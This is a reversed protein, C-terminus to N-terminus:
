SNYIIIITLYSNGLSNSVTDITMLNLDAQIDINNEKTYQNFGDVYASLMPGNGEITFAIINLIM